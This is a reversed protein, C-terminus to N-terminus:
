NSIMSRPPSRTKAKKKYRTYVFDQTYFALLKWICDWEWLTNCKCDSASNPSCTHQLTPFLHEIGLRFATKAIHLISLTILFSWSASDSHNLLFLKEYLFDTKRLIACTHPSLLIDNMWVQKSNHSVSALWHIPKLLSIADMHRWHRILYTDLAPVVIFNMSLIRMMLSHFPIPYGTAALRHFVTPTVNPILSYVDVCIVTTYANWDQEANACDFWM